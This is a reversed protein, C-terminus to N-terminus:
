GDADQPRRGWRRAAGALVPNEAIARAVAPATVWGLVNASVWTWAGPVRARLILAQWTGVLAGGAVIALPLRYPPTWGLAGAIDSGALAAALGAVCSLFWPLARGVLRRMVRAHLLGLSVGMGAGIMVQSGGLGIAEGVLAFLIVSPIGLLWGAATAQVWGRLVPTAAVERGDATESALGNAAPVVSM